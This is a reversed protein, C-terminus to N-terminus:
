SFFQFLSYLSAKQFTKWSSSMIQPLPQFNIDLWAFKIKQSCWAAHLIKIGLGPFLGTNGATSVYLTRGRSWWPIEWNKQIIVPIVAHQYALTVPPPCPLGSWYEQRSFGWPCLLRTPELGCSISTVSCSYKLLFFNSSFLHCSNGKFFSFLHVKTSVQFESSPNVDDKMIKKKALIM